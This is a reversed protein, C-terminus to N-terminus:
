PQNAKYTRAALEVADELPPLLLPKLDESIHKYVRKWMLDALFSIADISDYNEAFLEM